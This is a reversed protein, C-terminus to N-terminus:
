EEAEEFKIRHQRILGAIDNTVDFKDGTVEILRNGNAATIERWARTAYFRNSLPSFFVRIPKPPNKM